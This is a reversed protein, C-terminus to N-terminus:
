SVIIETSSKRNRKPGILKKKSAFQYLLNMVGMYIIFIEKSARRMKGNRREGRTPM